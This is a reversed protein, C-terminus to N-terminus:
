HGTMAEEEGEDEDAGGSVCRRLAFHEKEAVADGLM